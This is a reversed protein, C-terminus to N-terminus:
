EAGAEVGLQCATRKEEDTLYGTEIILKVGARYDAACKVVEAVERRVYDYDHDLMRAINIVMDIEAAGDICCQRTEAVKAATTTSGHPFAVTVLIGKGSDRMHEKALSVWTPYVDVTAFGYKKVTECAKVVTESGEFPSLAATYDVRPIIKELLDRDKATLLKYM